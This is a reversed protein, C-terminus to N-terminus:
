AQRLKDSFNFMACEGTGVRHVTPLGHKIHCLAAHELQCRIPKLQDFDRGADVDLTVDEGPHFKTWHDAIGGNHILANERATWHAQAILQQSHRNLSAEGVSFRNKTL